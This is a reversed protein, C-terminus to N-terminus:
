DEPTYKGLKYAALLPLYFTKKVGDADTKEFLVLYLGSSLRAKENDTGDWQISYGVTSPDDDYINFLYRGEMSYIDIRLNYTSTDSSVDFVIDTDYLANYVLGTYSGDIMDITFQASYAGFGILTFIMILTLRKM